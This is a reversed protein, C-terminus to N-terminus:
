SGTSRKRKRKRRRDAPAPMTTDGRLREPGRSTERNSTTPPAVRKDTDMPRAGDQRNASGRSREEDAHVVDEIAQIPEALEFPTRDVSLGGKDVVTSCRESVRPEMGDPVFWSKARLDIQAGGTGFAIQAVLISTEQCAVLWPGEGSKISLFDPSTVQQTATDITITAGDSSELRIRHRSPFHKIDFECKYADPGRTPPDRPPVGEMPQRPEQAAVPSVPLSSTDLHDPGAADLGLNHKRLFQALDEELKSVRSTRRSGDAVVHAKEVDILRGKCRIWRRKAFSQQQASSQDSMMLEYFRLCEVLNNTREYAAAIHEFRVRSCMKELQSRSEGLYQKLFHVVRNAVNSINSESQQAIAPIFRVEILHLEAILLRVREKNEVNRNGPLASRELLNLIFGWQRNEVLQVFYESFVERLMRDDVAANQNLADVMCEGATPVDQCRLFRRAAALLMGRDRLLRAVHREDDPSEASRKGSLILEARARRAIPASPESSYLDLVTEYEGCREAVIAIPERLESAPLGRDCLALMHRVVSKLLQERNRDVSGPPAAAHKLIATFARTYSAVRGPLADSLSVDHVRHVLEELLRELDLLSFGRKVLLGAVRSEVRGVLSSHEGAVSCVREYYGGEFYCQIAREPIRADLFLSGALEFQSEWEAAQAEAAFAKSDSGCRRWQAAAQRLHYASRNSFGDREYAQALAQPDERDKALADVRGPVVITTADKWDAQKNHTLRRIMRELKQEDAFYSWLGGTAFARPSDVIFLRKMARSAGVYLKNLFYEVKLLDERSQEHTRGNELLGSLPQAEAQDGFGFLLIRNFELGKARIASLVHAPVQKSADWKVISALFKSSHVYDAEDGEECPVIITVEHQELAESFRPDSDHFYMPPPSDSALTWSEQPRVEADSTLSRACQITNCFQVVPGMSRYNNSLEQYNIRIPDSSRAFRALMVTLRETFSSKMAEWRFGTPNLTQFPDGALVFPVRRACERDLTRRSFASLRYLCEIEPRTLDQAEDCFVAFHEHRAHAREEADQADLVARVLDQDDWLPGNETLGKYWDVWVRKFVLQFVKVSVNQEASPIDRYEDADELFADVQLGKIFSRIVHWSIQPGCEKIEGPQKGFRDMWLERFRGYSIRNEDNFRTRLDAPLQGRLVQSITQFAGLGFANLWAEDSVSENAILADPHSRMLSLVNKRAKNLLEESTTLYIPCSNTIEAFPCNRRWRRVTDSFLYQLVTSKGSGARGNIFIPFGGSGDTVRSSELVGLEEPSLALNPTMEEAREMEMWADIDALLYTPYARASRRRISKDDLEIASKDEPVTAASQHTVRLLLVRGLSPFGRFRVTLEHKRWEEEFSEHRHTLLDAIDGVMDCLPNLRNAVAKAQVDAIWEKSECVITGATASSTNPDFLFAHEHPTPAPHAVVSQKAVRAALWDRLNPRAEDLWPMATAEPDKAYNNYPTSSRTVLRLLVVVNHTEGNHEVLEEAAIVRNNYDAFRKKTLFPMPFRNFCGISQRSEVWQVIQRQIAEQTVSSRQADELFQVTPYVYYAM